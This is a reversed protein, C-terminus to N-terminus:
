VPMRMIEQYAEVIKNRAKVMLRLSVDAKELTLAAEHLNGEGRALKEVEVNAASQTEEVGEIAGRIMETFQVGAGSGESERVGGRAGKLTADPTVFRSLPPLEGIPM